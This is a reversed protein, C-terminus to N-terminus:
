DEAEQSLNYGDLSCISVCRHFITIKTAFCYSNKRQGEKKDEARFLFFDNVAPPCGVM